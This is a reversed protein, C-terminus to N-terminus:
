GLDHCLMVGQRPILLLAYECRHALGEVDLGDPVRLGLNPAALGVNLPKDYLRCGKRLEFGKSPM